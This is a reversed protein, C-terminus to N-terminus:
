WRKYIEEVDLMFYKVRYRHGNYNYEYFHKIGVHDESVLDGNERLFKALDQLLEEARDLM